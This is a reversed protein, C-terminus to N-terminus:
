WLGWSGGQVSVFPIWKLLPSRVRVSPPQATPPTAEERAADLLDPGPAENGGGQEDPAPGHGAILALASPNTYASRPAGRGQQASAEAVDYDDPQDGGEAPRLKLLERLRRRVPEGLHRQLQPLRRRLSTEQEELVARLGQALAPGTALRLAEIVGLATIM